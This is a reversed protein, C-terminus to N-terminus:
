LWPRWMWALIHAFVAVGIFGSMSSVFIGHFEQAEEETVGSLTKDDAM